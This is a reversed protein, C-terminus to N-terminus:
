MLLMMIDVSLIVKKVLQYLTVQRAGLLPSPQSSAPVSRWVMSRQIKGLRLTIELVFADLDSKQLRVVRTYTRM